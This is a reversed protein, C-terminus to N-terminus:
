QKRMMEPKFLRQRGYKMGIIEAFCAIGWLWKPTFSFAIFWAASAYLCMMKRLKSAKYPTGCVDCVNQVIINDRGFMVKPDLTKNGCVPCKVKEIRFLRTLRRDVPKINTVIIASGFGVFAPWISQISNIM